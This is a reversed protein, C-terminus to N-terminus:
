RRVWFRVNKDEALLLLRVACQAHPFLQDREVSLIVALGALKGVFILDDEIM